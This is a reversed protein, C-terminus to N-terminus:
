FRLTLHASYSDIGINSHFHASVSQNKKQWPNWNKLPKFHYVANTVLIAIGSGLLVDPVWHRNNIVRLAGTAGSFIYGSLGIWKNTQYYENFLVQSAVFAQSTHGSPFSNFSGNNPRQVKLTNKLLHVIGATVLESIALFKTQDWVSHRAPVKLMDFAYMEIIPVYQIYDDLSTSYGNLPQLIKDQMKMKLDDHNLIFAAASFSLPVISKVWLPQQPLDLVSGYWNIKELQTTKKGDQSIAILIPLTFAILLLTKM